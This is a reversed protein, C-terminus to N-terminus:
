VILLAGAPYRKITESLVRLNAATTRLDQVILRVDYQNDGIMADLRAITQDLNKVDYLKTYHISYSTIVDDRRGGGIGSAFFARM